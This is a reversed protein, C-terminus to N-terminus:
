VSTGNELAHGSLAANRARVLVIAALAVVAAAVLAATWYPSGMGFREFAFVGWFPGLIRAMSAM